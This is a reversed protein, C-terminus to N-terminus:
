VCEECLIGWVGENCRGEGKGINARIGNISRVM